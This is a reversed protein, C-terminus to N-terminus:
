GIEKDTLTKLIRLVDRTRIGTRGRARNEAAAARTAKDCRACHSLRLKLKRESGGAQRGTRALVLSASPLGSPAAAALEIRQFLPKYYSLEVKM